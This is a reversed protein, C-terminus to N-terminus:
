GSKLLIKKIGSRLPDLWTWGLRSYRRYNPAHWPYLARNRRLQLGPPAPRAAGSRGRELWLDEALAFLRLYEVAASACARALGPGPLPRPQRRHLEGAERFLAELAEGLRELPFGSEVRARAARGRAQRREPDALLAKLLRAYQEVESEEPGPEVLVGAEPTVLEAQGGVRAGVVALGCAMAEYISLAIGEWRSPLFFIDAAQMLERVQANPAAGLLRVRGELRHLRLFTQLWRFDPGSGAVLAVFRADERSLRLLTRAFVGPQKQATLRAAYLIVPADEPIGLRRRTERRAQPDPQWRRADINTYCVRVRGPDAGRAAMWAKLHGSSVLNLDLLEQYEVAMRPYGGNKWGEEEMHCYDLFVTEPCHQRLYPLLLYALESNAVLVVDARRSQILYRLFRPYDPLRLFRELVFIDPTHRAFHPLWSHDGQNTAALSVEWGRARLQEVLDLNFKDAGGYTLWPVLLLLRPKNKQLRNACPLSDPLTEHPMHWRPRIEPFGGQWLRPYRRRLGERFASHGQGYEWNEWRDSHDERRRYWDLYEPISAGWYGAHACKLWFEWDELGARNEEDYGGMAAHVERRIMGTADVQNEELFAKGAEFGVAWLYEHAGFGVTYGKVFAAEPHTLLYWYWKEVATPELLDDGDLQVVFPARASHFGTNRAASLGRNEPHDLVRIRAECRRYGDLVALTEPDTSGDNVILWEWDQFSQGLVSRATEHFVPGTNYCPTVITVAPEAPSAAPRYAFEPRLPSAPTSRYDPATPDIM